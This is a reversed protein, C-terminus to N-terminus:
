LWSLQLSGNINRTKDTIWKAYFAMISLCIFLFWHSLKASFM